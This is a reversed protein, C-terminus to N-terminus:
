NSSEALDEATDDEKPKKARVVIKWPPDYKLKGELEPPLSKDWREEKALSSVSRSNFGTTVYEPYGAAILAECIAAKEEATPDDGESVIRVYGDKRMSLTANTLPVGTLAEAEWRELIRAELDRIEGNIEKERKKIDRKEFTLAVLKREDEFRDSM